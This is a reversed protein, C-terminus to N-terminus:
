RCDGMTGLAPIGPKAGMPLPDEGSVISFAQASGLFM